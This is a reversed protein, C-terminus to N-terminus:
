DDDLGPRKFEMCTPFRAHLAEDLQELMTLVRSPPGGSRVAGKRLLVHWAERSERILLRSLKASGMADCSVGDPDLDPDISSFVARFTKAPIMLALYEIDSAAQRVAEEDAAPGEGFADCIEAAGKSYRGALVVLPDRQCRRFTFDTDDEADSALARLDVGLRKGIIGLMDITQTFRAQLEENPGVVAGSTLVAERRQELYDFCRTKFRCRECRRDCFNYIGPILNPDGARAILADFERENVAREVRGPAQIREIARTSDTISVMRGPADGSHLSSGM